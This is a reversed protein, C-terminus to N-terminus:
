ATDKRTNLDKSLPASDGELFTGTYSEISIVYKVLKASLTKTKFLLVSCYFFLMFSFKNKTLAYRKTQKYKRKDICDSIPLYINEFAETNIVCIFDM